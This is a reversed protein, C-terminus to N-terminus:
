DYANYENNTSYIIESVLAYISLGLLLLSFYYMETKNNIKLNLYSPIVFMILNTMIGAINAFIFIYKYLFGLSILLIIYIITFILEKKTLDIKYFERSKLDQKIKNYRQKSVSRDDLLKQKLQQNKQRNLNNDKNQQMYLNLDIEKSEQFNNIQQIQQDRENQNNEVDIQLDINNKIPQNDQNSNLNNNLNTNSNNNQIGNNQQNKQQKQEKEDKDIREQIGLFQDKM